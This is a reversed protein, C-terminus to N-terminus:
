RQRLESGGGGIDLYIEVWLLSGLNYNLECLTKLQRTTHYLPLNRKVCVNKVDFQRLFRYYSILFFASHRWPTTLAHFKAIKLATADPKMGPVPTIKCKKSSYRDLSPLASCVVRWMIGNFCFMVFSLIIINVKEREEEEEEEEEGRERM